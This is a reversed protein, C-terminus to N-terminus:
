LPKADITTPISKLEDAIKEAFEELILLDPGSVRLEIPKGAPPGSDLEVFRIDGQTVIPELKKRLESVFEFSYTEREKKDILNIQIFAKNSDGESASTAGDGGIASGINTVFNEIESEKRLENEIKKTIEDTRELVTGNPMELNIYFFDSDDQGFAQMKILGFVPLAMSIFFFIWIGAIVQIRRKRSTLIKPINRRYVKAIWDFMKSSFREKRPKGKFIQKMKLCVKTFFNRGCPEEKKKRVPKILYTGLAPIISVSVFLGAILTSIVVIPITRIFSGFIGKVFLLPFFAAVTTLMGALLPAAYERVTSIAAQYGTLKYKEVKNHMGEVIVIASDVLLGLSLVLAFLSITNLSEGVSAMVIFAIFFSFPVAPGALFAEQWGLFILLLLLILFVTALGNGVLTNISDTVFKSFDNTVEVTVNEPYASGKENEIRDRVESALATVDGGTKKYIQISVADLPEDGAISFRSRSFEKSFDDKVKAVDELYILSGDNNAGIPFIGVESSDKFEGQIRVNYRSKEIVISGAPFNVNNASLVGLVGQVTLGKKALIDQDFDVKIVRDRGGSINVESVFPVGKIEDKLNEAFQKLEAVDYEESVLTVEMVPRDDIKAEVTKPESADEPLETKANDVKDKLEKISKDIDEGAEFEVFISSFGLSSSSDIRKIGNLDSIESEIKKTVQQEIDLPSAGPFVTVVIAFPIEIEPNLERPMNKITAIGFILLAIIILITLKSKRILFVWPSNEFEELERVIKERLKLKKVRSDKNESSNETSNM